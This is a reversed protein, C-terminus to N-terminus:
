PAESMEAGDELGLVHDVAVREGAVIGSVVEITKDDRWGVRVARVSAHGDKCVVVEAGDSVAGRLAQIPIQLVADRHQTAIVASGFAGMPVSAGPAPIAIRVPALGTASDLATARARVTGEFADETDALKVRAHQGERIMALERGTAEAVFEIDATTALQVIPTASTGDVLAGPGLLVKTVVGPLNSRVEVRGLTKRALDVSSAAAASAAKAADYQAIADDLDQKPSIGEAVLARTRDLTMKTKTEQAKAQALTANALLLADRSAVDDVRAVIDGSKLSQGEHALVKEIRGAVQSAVSLDGGPPSSIRGRLSLSEDVSGAAAAVCKVAPVAPAQEPPPKACGAAPVLVLLCSCWARM